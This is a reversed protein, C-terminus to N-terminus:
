FQNKWERIMAFIAVESTLPGGAFLEASQRVPAESYRLFPNIQKETAIDTPLTPQGSERLRTCNEIAETIHHNNPEVAAAFALNALSYEHTCYIQTTEPRRRFYEMSQHMQEPTGEFLRGCGALFLTDGCFVQPDQGALYYSIHDLTHGPVEKIKLTLGLIEITDGDSLKDTIGGFPSRAPGYVTVSHQQRLQDVGGTHDQHHHTILITTLQLNNEILYRNVVDADGPDVVAVENSGPVTLAWIYNDNFAPIPMVNFM